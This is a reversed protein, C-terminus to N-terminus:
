AQEAVKEVFVYDPQETVMDCFYHLTDVIQDDNMTNFTRRLMAHIVTRTTENAVDVLKSLVPGLDLMSVPKEFFGELAEDTMTQFASVVDPVISTAPKQKVDDQLSYLSEALAADIAFGIFADGDPEAPNRYLIEDIYEALPLMEQNSLKGVLRRAILQVTRRVSNLATLVITKGVSGLGIKEVPHAFFVDLCENIFRDLIKQLLPKLSGAQQSQVRDLFVEADRRLESSAKFWMFYGSM